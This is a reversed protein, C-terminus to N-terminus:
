IVTGDEFAFEDRLRKLEADNLLRKARLQAALEDLRKFNM